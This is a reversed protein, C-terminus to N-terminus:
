SVSIFVYGTSSDGDFDTVKFSVNYSGTFNFTHLPNQEGSIGSDTFNWLYSFSGDGGTFDGTFNVTLPAIGSTPVASPNALPQSDTVTLNYEVTRKLGRIIDTGNILIVYTGTPTSSATSVTLTSSYSPFGSKPSFTCIAATPCGTQSLNVNESFGSILTLTVNTSNSRAQAVTGSSPNDSISFDFTRADIAVYGTSSNGNFDTATFSVNYLGALTFNHKPNQETSTTSDNFNWLYTLPPNGASVSGNFTVELVVNGSTPNASPNVIPQSDANATVLVYRTSKDGDFDTATFSVNYTGATFTHQPNQNTSTGGDTFNWFYTLPADGGSVTGNFNVTLPEIGSSPNASASAVPLSDTVNLVFTTGRSLGDGSGTINITYSGVPTSAGATMTLLADFTPTGSSVNLNCTAQSPCNSVTLTVTQSNGGLLTTTIVSTTSRAQAVTGNSPNRSMSFDFPTYTVNVPIWDLNCTPNSSSQPSKICTANVRFNTNNLMSGTWSLDNTLDITFQQEATNGGVTHKAGYSAGNDGSAQVVIFGRVNSAFFDSRVSVNKIIASDKIAFGYNNWKGTVNATNTAIATARNLDNLNANSCSTWNGSCSVPNNQVLVAYAPIGTLSFIVLSILILSKYKKFM